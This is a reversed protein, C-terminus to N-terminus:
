KLVQIKQTEIATSGIFQVLYYGNDFASLDISTILQNAEIQKIIRGSIDRIVMKDIEIEEPLEVFFLGKNPNPYVRIHLESDNMGVTGTCFCEEDYVENQTFENGDDCPNGPYSCSNDDVTADPNYSCSLPDTCGPLIFRYTNWSVLVTDGQLGKSVALDAFVNYDQNFNSELSVKYNPAWTLGEDDSWSIYTNFFCGGLTPSNFERSDSWVVYIRNNSGRALATHTEPIFAQNSIADSSHLTDVDSITYTEWLDAFFDLRHALGIEDLYFQQHTYSVLIKDGEINLQPNSVRHGPLVFLPHDTFNETYTQWNQGFDVSTKLELNSGFVDCEAIVAYFVGNENIACDGIASFQLGENVFSMPTWSIGGDTSASCWTDWDLSGNDDYYIAWMALLTDGRSDINWTLLDFTTNNNLNSSLVIPNQFSVGGNTSLCFKAQPALNGTYLYSYLIGVKVMNGERWVTINTTVPVGQPNSNDAISIPAEWNEGDSSKRFRLETGSNYVQYFKGEFSVTNNMSGSQAYLNGEGQPTLSLTSTDVLGTQNFFLARSAIAGEYTQAITASTFSIFGAFTLLLRKM